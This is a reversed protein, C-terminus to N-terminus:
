NSKIITAYRKNASIILGSYGEKKLEQDIRTQIEDLELDTYITRQGQSINGARGDEMLALLEIEIKYM